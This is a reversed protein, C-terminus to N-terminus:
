KKEAGPLGVALIGASQIKQNLEALDHEVLNNWIALEADVKGRLEEYFEYSQQTPPADASDVV